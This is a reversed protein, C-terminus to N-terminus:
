VETSIMRHTRNTSDRVNECRRAAEERDIGTDLTGM